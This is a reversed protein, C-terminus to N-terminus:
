NINNTNKRNVPRGFLDYDTEGRRIYLIGRRLYKYTGKKPDMTNDLAETVEVHTMIWRTCENEGTIVILTDGAPLAQEPTVFLTDYEMEPETFRITIHRIIWTDTGAPVTDRFTTDASYATEGFVVTKGLCLATDIETVPIAATDVHLSIRRTCQDEEALEILTDGYFVTADLPEYRYGEAGMLMPVVSLTDYETEPETFRISINGVMWKDGSLMVTDFVVTDEAYVKENFRVTKGMCLTTDMDQEIITINKDVHLQIYRTCTNNKKKVILTDGYHVQAALTSYYYYGRKAMETPPVAITDYETEPETFRITINRITYTDPTSNNAAAYTWVSDRIVTDQSYTINNIKITKGLCLTTDIETTTTVFNHEVHVLYREDCKDAQHITFDYDGWGEKPIFNNRYIYPLQGKKLRLTDYAPQPAEVTLRYGTLSLTDAKGWLTDGGYETSERLVTDALQLTKGQCIVTDIIQNNWQITNRYVIRGVYSPDHTVHVYVSDGALRLAKMTDPNLVFVRMSDTLTVNAIEPGNCSDKTLRITGPLNKKQTWRIFGNGASSIKSPQLVYVEEPQDCIYTMRPLVYLFTDCTSEPGQDYPYCYVSGSRGHATYVRIRPILLQGLTVAQQGMSELKANIEEVSMERMQNPGVSMTITPVNSSCFAYIEFTITDDSLWYASLGQKMDDITTSFWRPSSIEEKLPFQFAQSTTRCECYHDPLGNFWGECSTDVMPMNQQAFCCVAATMLSFLYLNRKM